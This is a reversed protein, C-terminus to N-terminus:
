RAPRVTPAPRGPRVELWGRMFGVHHLWAAWGVAGAALALGAVFAPAANATMAAGFTAGALVWRAYSTLANVV